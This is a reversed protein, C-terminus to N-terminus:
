VQQICSLLENAKEMENSIWSRFHLKRETVNMSRSSLRRPNNKEQQDPLKKGTRKSIKSHPGDVCSAIESGFRTNLGIILEKNTPTKQM